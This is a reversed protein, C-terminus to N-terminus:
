RAPIAKGYKHFLSHREVYCVSPDVALELGRGKGPIIGFYFAPFVLIDQNSAYEDPTRSVVRGGYRWWGSNSSALAREIAWLVAKRALKTALGNGSEFRLQHQRSDLELFAVEPNLPMRDPIQLDRLTECSGAVALRRCDGDRFPEVPLRLKSSLLNSLLRVKKEYDDDDALLGTFTITRYGADLNHLGDLHFSNLRFPNTPRNNRYSVGMVCRWSLVTNVRAQATPPHSFM